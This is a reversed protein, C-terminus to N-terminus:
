PRKKMPCFSCDHYNILRKREALVLCRCVSSMIILKHQFFLGNDHRGCCYFLSSSTSSGHRVLSSESPSLARQFCTSCAPATPPFTPLANRKVTEFDLLVGKFQTIIWGRKTLLSNNSQNYQPVALTALAPQSRCSLM